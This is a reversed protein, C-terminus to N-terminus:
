SAMIQRGIKGFKQVCKNTAPNLIKDDECTKQITKKKKNDQSAIKVPSYKTPTKNQYIPTKVPMKVRNPTKVRITPTKVSMKVRNPTKNQYIPTKVRITPIKIPSKIKVQNTPTKIPTKIKVQNTPTKIPTKIKFKNIPTEVRIAKVVQDPSFTNIFSTRANSIIDKLVFFDQDSVYHKTEMTKITMEITTFIDRVYEYTWTITQKSVCMKNMVSDIESKVFFMNVIIDKQEYFQVIYKELKNPINMNQLQAHLTAYLLFKAAKKVDFDKQKIAQVFPLYYKSLDGSEHLHMQMDCPNLGTILTYIVIRGLPKVQSQRTLIKIMERVHDGFVNDFAFYALFGIVLALELLLIVGTIKLIEYILGGGKQLQGSEDVSLNALQLNYYKNKAIKYQALISADSSTEVINNDKRIATADEITYINDKIDTITL